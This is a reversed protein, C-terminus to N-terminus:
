ILLIIYIILFIITSIVLTFLFVTLQIIRYASKIDRSELEKNPTGLKYKGLKELQVNLLGAMAGMTWGANM